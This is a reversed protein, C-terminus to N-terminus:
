LSKETKEIVNWACSAGPEFGRDQALIDLYILGLPAVSAHPATIMNRIDLGVIYKMCAHCLEAHEFNRDESFIIELKENETNECFACQTRMYPWEHACFSCRLFRRGESGKWFSIAPWSGCVPCYGKLWSLDKIFPSIAKAINEAFPRALEFCIFQLELSPIGLKTALEDPQSMTISELYSVLEDLFIGNEEIARETASLSIELKPFGKRISPILLASVTRLADKDVHIKRDRLLPIGQSFRLQDFDEHSFNPSLLHSKATETTLLLNQFADVVGSLQPIDNKIKTLTDEITLAAPHLTENSVM